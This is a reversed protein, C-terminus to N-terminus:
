DISYKKRATRKANVVKGDEYQINIEGFQENMFPKLIETIEKKDNLETTENMFIKNGEKRITLVGGDGLINLRDIVRKINDESLPKAICVAGTISAEKKISFNNNNSAIKPMGNLGRLRNIIEILDISISCGCSPLNYTDCLFFSKDNAILFMQEGIHSLIIADIWFSSIRMGFFSNKIQELVISSASKKRLERILHLYFCDIYSFRRWGKGEQPRSDPFLREVTLQNVYRYPIGSKKIRANRKSWNLNLDKRNNTSISALIDKNKQSLIIKKDTTMIHIISRQEIKLLLM